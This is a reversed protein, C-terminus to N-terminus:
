TLFLDPQHSKTIHIKISKRMRHLVQLMKMAEAEYANLCQKEEEPGDPIYYGHPARKSSGIIKGEERLTQITANIDRLSLGFAEALRQAKIARPRGFANKKLYEHIQQNM